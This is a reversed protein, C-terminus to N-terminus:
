SMCWYAGPLVMNRVDIGKIKMKKHIGCTMFLMIPCTIIWSAMRSFPFYHGDGMRLIGNGSASLSYLVAEVSPLYIAEWTVRPARTGM